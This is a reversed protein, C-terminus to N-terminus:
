SPNTWEECEDMLNDKTDDLGAEDTDDTFAQNWNPTGWLSCIYADVIVTYEGGGWDLVEPYEDCVRLSTAPPEPCDEPVWHAAAPVMLATGAALQAMVAVKLKTSVM